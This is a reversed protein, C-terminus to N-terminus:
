RDMRWRVAAAFREADREPIEDVAVSGDRLDELSACVTPETEVIRPTPDEEFLMADPTTIPAIPVCPEPHPFGYFRM